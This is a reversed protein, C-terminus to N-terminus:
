RLLMGAATATLTVPAEGEASFEVVGFGDDACGAGRVAMGTDGYCLLDANSHLRIGSESLDVIPSLPVIVTKGDVVTQLEAWFRGGDEDIRVHGTGGHLAAASRATKHAVAFEAAATQVTMDNLTMMRPLGVTLGMIAAMGVILVEVLAFGNRRRGPGNNQSPGDMWRTPTTDNTTMDHPEQSTNDLPDSM